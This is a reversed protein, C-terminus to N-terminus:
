EIYKSTMGFSMARILWDIYSSQMSEDISLFRHCIGSLEIQHVGSRRESTSCLISERTQLIQAIEVNSYISKHRRAVRAVRVDEAYFRTQPNKVIRKDASQTHLHSCAIGFFPTPQHPQSPTGLAICLIFDRVHACEAGNRIRLRHKQLRCMTVSVFLFINKQQLRFLTLIWFPSTRVRRRERVRGNAIREMDGESPCQVAVCRECECRLVSADGSHRNEIKTRNKVCVDYASLAYRCSLCVFGFVCEHTEFSRFKCDNGNVEPTRVRDIFKTKITAMWGGFCKCCLFDQPLRNLHIENNRRHVCIIVVVVVFRSMCVCTVRSRAVLSKGHNWTRKAPRLFSGRCM